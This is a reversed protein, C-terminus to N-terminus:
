SRNFQVTFVNGKPSNKDFSLSWGKHACICTVLSLGLGYGKGETHEGCLFRALVKEKDSDPIDIVRVCTDTLELIVSGKLTYQIVDRM